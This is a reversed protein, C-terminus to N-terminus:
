EYGLNVFAAAVVYCASAAGWNRATDWVELLLGDYRDRWDALGGEVEELEGMVSRRNPILNSAGKQDFWLEPERRLLMQSLPDLYQHLDVTALFLQALKRKAAVKLFWPFRLDEELDAATIQPVKPPESSIWTKRHTGLLVRQARMVCCCSLLKWRSSTGLQPPPQSVSPAMDGRQLLHQARIVWRENEFMGDPYKRRQSLLLCIRVQNM